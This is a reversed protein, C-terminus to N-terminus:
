PNDKICQQCILASCSCTRNLLFNLLPFPVVLFYNYKKHTERQMYITSHYEIFFTAFILGLHTGALLDTDRDDLGEAGGDGDLGEGGETSGPLM